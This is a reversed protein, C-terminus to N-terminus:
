QFILFIYSQIICRHVHYKTVVKKSTIKPLETKGYGSSPVHKLGSNANTSQLQKGKRDINASLLSNAIRANRISKANYNVVTTDWAKKISKKIPLKLQFLQKKCSSKNKGRNGKLLPDNFAAQPPKKRNTDIRDRLTTAFGNKQGVKDNRDKVKNLDDDSNETETLFFGSSPEKQLPNSSIKKPSISSDNTSMRSYRGRIPDALLSLKKLPISKPKHPLSQYRSILASYAPKKFVETLKHPSDRLKLFEVNKQPSIGNLTPGRHVFDPFNDETADILSDLQLENWLLDTEGFM